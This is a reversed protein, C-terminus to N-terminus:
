VDSVLCGEVYVPLIGLSFADMCLVEPEAHLPSLGHLLYPMRIEEEHAQEEPPCVLYSMLPFRHRRKRKKTM